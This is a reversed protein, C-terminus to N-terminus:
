TTKNFFGAGEGDFSYACQGHIHKGFSIKIDADKEMEVPEFTLPTVESWYNFAARIAQRLIM